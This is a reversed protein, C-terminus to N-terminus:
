FKNFLGKEQKFDTQLMRKGMTYALILTCVRKQDNTTILFALLPNALLFKAMLPIPFIEIEWHVLYPASIKSRGCYQSLRLFYVLYLFCCEYNMSVSLKLISSFM